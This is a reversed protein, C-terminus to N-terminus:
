EALLELLKRCRQRERRLAQLLLLRAARDDAPLPLLKAPRAFGALDDARMGLEAVTAASMIAVMEAAVRQEHQDGKRSM